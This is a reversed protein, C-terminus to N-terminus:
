LYQISNAKNNLGSLNGGAGFFAEWAGSINDGDWHKVEYCGNSTSSVRNKWSSSLNLWGGACDDGVVSFSSGTLSFGDYHSGIVFSQTSQVRIGQLEGSPAGARLKGANAVGAAALAESYSARCEPPTTVFEGSPKKDLVRVACHESRAASAPAAATSLVIITLAVLAGLKTNM